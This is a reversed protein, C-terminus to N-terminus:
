KGVGAIDIRSSKLRVNVRGCRDETALSEVSLPLVSLPRGGTLQPISSLRTGVDHYSLDKAGM